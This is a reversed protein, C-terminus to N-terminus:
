LKDDKTPISTKYILAIPKESCSGHIRSLNGAANKERSLTKGAPKKQGGNQCYEANVTALKEV